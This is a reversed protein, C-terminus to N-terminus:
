AERAVELAEEDFRRIRASLERFFEFSIAPDQLVIQRFHEPSLVLLIGQEVGVVDASRPLDEFIAMDGFFDGAQQTALTHPTTGFHKVIDV